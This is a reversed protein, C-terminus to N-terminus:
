KERGEEEKREKEASLGGGKKQCVVRRMIRRRRWENADKGRGILMKRKRKERDEVGKKRVLSCCLPCRGVDKTVVGDFGSGVWM